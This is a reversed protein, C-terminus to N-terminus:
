VAIVAVDVVADGEEVPHVTDNLYALDDGVYVTANVGYTFRPDLDEEWVLQYTVPLTSVDPIEQAAIVVSPADQLSIDELTVVIRAGDPLQTSGAAGDVTIEGTLTHTAVSETASPETGGDDSCALLCLAALPGVLFARSSIM